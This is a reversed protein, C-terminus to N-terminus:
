RDSISPMLASGSLSASCLSLLRFGCLINL